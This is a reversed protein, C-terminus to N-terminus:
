DELSHSVPAVRSVLTNDPSGICLFLDDPQVILDKPNILVENGRQVAVPIAGQSSNFDSICDRFKRGVLRGDVPASFLGSDNHSPRLLHQILRLQGSGLAAQAILHGSLDQTIIIEDVNGMRLHHENMSNSLEACTYVKPNLKEITLACLVTRADADQRTRNQNIDAVIIAVSAHAINAKQLLEVRTFDGKLLRVRGPYPLTVLNPLEERDALVIFERHRFNPHHQLERLTVELGTKWGCVLVHDELDELAHKSLTGGERFKEIMIASITGTMVAMVSLNCFQVGLIVFRGGSTHPFEHAFEGSMLSYIVTWFSRHLVEYGSNPAEFHAYAFTGALVSFAIFCFTLFYEGTSQQLKSQLQRSNSTVLNALRFLRLLRFLRFFRGIRFIRLLPLIAIIDIWYEELFRSKRKLALYRILLELVFFLTIFEQIESILALRPDEKALAVEPVMLCLSLVILTIVLLDFGVHKVLRQCLRGLKSTHSFM